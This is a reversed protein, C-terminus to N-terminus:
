RPLHQTRIQEAVQRAAARGDVEGSIISQMLREEARSVSIGELRCSGALQSAIYGATKLRVVM